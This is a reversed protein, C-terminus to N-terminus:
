IRGQSMVSMAAKVIAGSSRYTQELHIESTDEFDLIPTLPISASGCRCVCWDENEEFQWDRCSEMWLSYASTIIICMPICSASSQDPDGVISVNNHRSMLRMLDYQVTNTDKTNSTLLFKM